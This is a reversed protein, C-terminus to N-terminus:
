LGGIGHAPSTKSIDVARHGVIATDIAYRTQRRSIVINGSMINLGLAGCRTKAFAIGQIRVKGACRIWRGRRQYFHPLTLFRRRVKSNLGPIVDLYRPVDNRWTARRRPIDAIRYEEYGLRVANIELRNDLGDIGIAIERSKGKLNAVDCRTGILEEGRKAFRALEIVSM